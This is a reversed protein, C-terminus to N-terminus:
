SDSEQPAPDVILQAHSPLAKAYLGKLEDLIAQRDPAPALAPRPKGYLEAKKAERRDIENTAYEVLFKAAEFAYHADTSQAARVLTVLAQNLLKWPNSVETTTQLVPVDASLTVTITAPKTKPKARAHATSTAM